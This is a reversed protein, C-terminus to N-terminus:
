FISVFKLIHESENVREPHGVPFHDQTKHKSNNHQKLAAETIYVKACVKCEFTAKEGKVAHSNQIHKNMDTKEKFRLRCHSCNYQGSHKLMHGALQNATTSKWNCETCKTWMKGNEDEEVITEKEDEKEKNNNIKENAEIIADKVKIEEMLVQNVSLTDALTEADSVSKEKLETNEKLANFLNKAYEKNDKNTQEYKQKLQEHRRKLTEM